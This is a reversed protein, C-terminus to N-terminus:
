GRGAQRRRSDPDSTEIAPIIEELTAQLDGTTGALAGPFGKWRITGVPGIVAYGIAAFEPDRGSSVTSGPRRLLLLVEESQVLADDATPFREALEDFNIINDRQQPDLVTVGVRVTEGATPPSDADPWQALVDVITVKNIMFVTVSDRGLAAREPGSVVWGRALYPSRTGLESPSTYTTPSVDVYRPEEESCGLGATPLSACLLAVFLRRRVTRPRGM